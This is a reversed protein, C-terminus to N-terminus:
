VAASFVRDSWWVAEKFCRHLHNLNLGRSLAIGDCRLWDGLENAEVWDLPIRESNTEGLLANRIEDRLPLADIAEEMSTGLMVPLMSFMGLLYQETADLACLKSALECHRARVLAMRLIEAPQGANFESAIALSAIRRFVDDGVMLLADKISRIQQHIAYVPSNVLRLLRYTLSADSKVLESITFLNLPDDTLAHLLQLHLIRNAPIKRKTVLIPRCFYYGQFLTFGESRSQEYDQRTEVKVAVLTCARDRLHVMSELRRTETSAKTDIKIYDALHILPEMSPKWVFNDLALRFGSAKLQGCAEVLGPVPDATELVELVAMDPPLLDVHKGTLAEATCNVFAPLGCALDELGFIVSNDIMTHTALEGEGGFFDQRDHRFLLEYGHVKGRLDLIPQRAIYRYDGASEPITGAPNTAYTDQTWM